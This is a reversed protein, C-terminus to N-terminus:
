LRAVVFADGGNNGPGALVLPPGGLGSQLKLALTAAAKGAREMLPPNVNANASEIARLAGSQLLLQTMM